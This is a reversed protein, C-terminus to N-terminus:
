SITSFQEKLALKIVNNNMTRILLLYINKSLNKEYFFHILYLQFNSLTSM